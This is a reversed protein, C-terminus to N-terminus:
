KWRWVDYKVMVSAAHLRLDYGVGLETRKWRFGGMVSAQERGLQVGVSLALRPFAKKEGSGGVAGTPEASPIYAIRPQMQALDYRFLRGRLSNETVTDDVYVTAVDFLRLTDTYTRVAYYASLVSSTDVASPVPRVVEVVKPPLSRYITDHLWLTDLRVEVRPPSAVQNPSTHEVRRGGLLCDEHGSLVVLLGLLLGGLLMNLIRDRKM